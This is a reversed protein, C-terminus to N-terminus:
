GHWMEKEKFDLGAVLNDSLEIIGRVQPANPLNLERASCLMGFSAVGRLSGEFILTGNPMLSIPLAAVTKLGVHTNPAGSVIQVLHEPNGVNVQCVHLHDSDPHDEMEVIEAVKFQSAATGEITDMFGAEAIEDELKWVKKESLKIEGNKEFEKGFFNWAVTEGTDERFIRTIDAMREYDIKTGQNDAIVLMLVNGINKNFFAIM